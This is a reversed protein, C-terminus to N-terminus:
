NRDIKGGSEEATGVVLELGCFANHRAVFVDVFLSTRLQHRCARLVIGSFRSKGDLNSDPFRCALLLHNRAIADFFFFLFRKSPWPPSASWLARPLLPVCWALTSVFLLSCLCTSSSAPQTLSTTHSILQRKKSLAYSWSLTTPLVGRCAVTSAARSSALSCNLFARLRSSQRM